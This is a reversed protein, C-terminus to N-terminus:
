IPKRKRKWSFKVPDTPIDDPQQLGLSKTRPNVLHRPPQNDSTRDDTSQKTAPQRKDQRDQEEALARLSADIDTEDAAIVAEVQETM